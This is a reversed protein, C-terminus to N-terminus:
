MGNEARFLRQFGRTLKAVSLGRNAHFEPPDGFPSREIARCATRTKLWSMRARVKERAFSGCILKRLAGGFFYRVGVFRQSRCPTMGVLLSGSGSTWPFLASWAKLPQHLSCLQDMRPGRKGQFLMCILPYRGPSQLPLCGSQHASSRMAASLSFSGFLQSAALDRSVDLTLRGLM